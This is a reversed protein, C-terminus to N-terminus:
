RPSTGMCQQVLNAFHWNLKSAIEQLIISGRCSTGKHNVRPSYVAIGARGIASSVILGSVGSKSPLGTIVLNMGSEDYLGCTAMLAVVQQCTSNSIIQTGEPSCGGNALLMPLYLAQQINAEYSCLAFYPQLIDEVDGTLVGTSKLLYAISRNRDATGLESEFVDQCFTLKQGYVTNIWYEVWNLKEQVTGPIRAALCIAGANILPNSPVLGYRDLYSIAAFSQGSPEANIWSFVKQAGYEELMGILLILKSVSQLTFKAQTDGATVVAGNILHIGAITIESDVNALQPIYDALRGSSNKKALVISDHLIKEFDHITNNHM